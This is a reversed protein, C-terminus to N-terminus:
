TTVRKWRYVEVHQEPTLLDSFPVRVKKGDKDVVTIYREIHGVTPEDMLLRFIEDMM